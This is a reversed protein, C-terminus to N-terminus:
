LIISGHKLLEVKWAKTNWSGTLKSPFEVLEVQINRQITPTLAIIFYLIIFWEHQQHNGGM